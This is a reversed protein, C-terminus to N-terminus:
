TLNLLLSQQVLKDAVRTAGDLVSTRRKENSTDGVEFIIVIRFLFITAFAINFIMKLVSGSLDDLHARFTWKIFGFCNLIADVSPLYFFNFQLFILLRDITFLLFNLFLNSFLLSFLNEGQM